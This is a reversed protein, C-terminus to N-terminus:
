AIQFIMQGLPPSFEAIEDAIGFAVAQNADIHLDGYRHVAWQEDPMSLHARLIAETRADDIDLANAVVKLREANTMQPTTHTRHIMFAAHASVKRSKAGLYAITAISYVTGANYLVLDMPLARFFNYLCVGDGVFGGFSQFLLHLRPCNKNMATVVGDFIKAVNAQNIDGAFVAYVESIPNQTQNM